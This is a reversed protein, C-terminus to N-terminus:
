TTESIQKPKIDIRVPFLEGDPSTAEIFEIRETDVGMKGLVWRVVNGPHQPGTLIVREGRLGGGSMCDALAQLVAVWLHEDEPNASQKLAQMSQCRQVVEASVILVGVPEEDGSPDQATQGHQGAVAASTVTPPNAPANARANHESGGCGLACVTVMCVSALAALKLM